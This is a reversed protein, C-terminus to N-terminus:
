CGQEWVPPVPTSHQENRFLHPKAAHLLILGVFEPHPSSPVRIQQYKHVPQKQFGEKRAENLKQTQIDLQPPRPHPHAPFQCTPKYYNHTQWLDKRGIPM